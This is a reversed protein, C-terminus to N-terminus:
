ENMNNWGKKEKKMYAYKNEQKCNKEMQKM